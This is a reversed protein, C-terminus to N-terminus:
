SSPPAQLAVANSFRFGGPAQPDRHWYQFYWTSANLLNPLAGLDLEHM